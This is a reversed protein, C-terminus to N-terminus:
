RPPRRARPPATSRPPRQALHQVPGARRGQHRGIARQRPPHALLQHPPVDVDLIRAALREALGRGARQGPQHEITGQLIQRRDLDQRQEVMGVQPEPAPPRLHHPEGPAELAGDQAADQRGAGQVVGRSQQGPCLRRALFRMRGPDQLADIGPAKGVEAREQGVEHGGQRRQETQPTRGRQRGPEIRMLPHEPRQELLLGAFRIRRSRAIGHQRRKELVELLGGVRGDQEVAGAVPRQEIPEGGVHRHAAGGAAVRADLDQPQEFGPEQRGVPHDEAAEVLRDPGGLHAGVGEQVAGHPGRQAERRGLPADAKRRMIELHRQSLGLHQDGPRGFAAACRGDRGPEELTQRRDGPGGPVRAPRAAPTVDGQGAREFRGGRHRGDAAGRRARRDLQPRSRQAHRADLHQAAVGVADIGLPDKLKCGGFPERHRHARTLEAGGEVDSKRSMRRGIRPRVHGRPRGSLKALPQAFREANREFLRPEPGEVPGPDFAPVRAKRAQSPTRRDAISRRTTSCVPTRRSLRASPDVKSSRASASRISISRSPRTVRISKLVPVGGLRRSTLAAERRLQRELGVHGRLACERRDAGAGPDRRGAVDLEAGRVLDPDDVEGPLAVRGEGVDDGRMAVLQDPQEVGEAVGVGSVHGAREGFIGRAEAGVIVQGPHLITPPRRRRPRRLRSM